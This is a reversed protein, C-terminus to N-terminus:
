PASNRGKEKLEYVRAPGKGTRKRVRRELADKVLQTAAQDVTVGDREAIRKVIARENGTLNTHDENPM